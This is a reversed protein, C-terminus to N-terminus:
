SRELQSLDPDMRSMFADLALEMASSRSGKFLIRDGDTVLSALETAAAIQDACTLAEGGVASFGQALGAAAPGVALLLDIGAEHLGRGTDVHLDDSRPGLEAMAGLVAIVRGTGPLDRTAHAASIMSAPNANYTDDLVTLGNVVLRRSRHPSGLYHSMADAADLERGVLYEAALMAAALNAGNYRGPLPVPIERGDMVLQGSGDEARWQWRHDGAEAGFSIVQCPARECWEDYGPSDANLIAAGDTPLHDLLEGKTRVIEALSGFGALHAESANTIVGVQPSALAALRDIDGAYSAGLEVVALDHDRRLGLLTLPLGLDNNFNGVTAHTPAVAACLTALFDKTTTKGNTGTVAALRVSTVRRWSRALEQLAAEPDLCLIVVADHGPDGSLVPDAGDGDWPRTLAVAAGARLASGVYNRGDVHEGLLGVYLEGERITRSDLGAGQFGLKPWTSEDLRGTQWRGGQHIHFGDLRGMDRLHTMASQLTYGRIEAM